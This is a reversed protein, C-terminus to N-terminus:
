NLPYNHEVIRWSLIKIEAAVYTDIVETPKEPTIFNIEPDYVPTGYGQIKNINVKYVHNRVVGYETISGPTGLHKIDTWYYTMGQNYVLAPQINALIENINAKAVETYNGNDNKYWKKSEGSTSLQFYVEYANNDGAARAVCKLDEPLITTFATGDPSSYYISKLTNAVETRLKLEGNYVKGYWSAITVPTAVAGDLTVLQAKVIVKTRNDEAESWARTNEGCYDYGNLEIHNAGAKWAFTNEPFAKGLSISWYSRSWDPDNWGFGIGTWSADIKKILRSDEYDNYLEFGKIQAYVPKGDIEEGVYFQGNNDATFVVKAAVREVYIEVPHQLALERSKAINEITLPAVEVVEKSNDAYVANSMVFGNTEDGLATKTRLEDLTYMKKSPDPQWNLVALMKNPYRGQYNQLVLVAKVDTVNPKENNEGNLLIDTVDLYNSQGANTTTETTVDYSVAFPEDDYFFFVHASHVASEAPTGDNFEYEGEPARTGLDDAKLTIAVYSEELEGNLDFNPDNNANECAALTFAALAMFFYKKM